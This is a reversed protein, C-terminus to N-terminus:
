DAGAWSCQAGLVHGVRVCTQDVRFAGRKVTVEVKYDLYAPSARETFTPPAAYPAPRGKEEHVAQVTRPLALAFPWAM